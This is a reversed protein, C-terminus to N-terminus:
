NKTLQSLIRSIVFEFVNIKLFIRVNFNFHRFMFITTFVKKLKEFFERTEFIMIFKTHFKKKEINKLLNTLEVIIRSFDKVFRRYFNVFNIFTARKLMHCIEILKTCVLNSEKAYFIWKFFCLFRFFRNEVCSFSM